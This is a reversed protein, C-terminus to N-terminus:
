AFPQILLRTELYDRNWPRRNRNFLVDLISVHGLRQQADSIVMRHRTAIRRDDHVIIGINVKAVEGIGKALLPDERVVALRPM